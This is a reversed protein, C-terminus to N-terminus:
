KPMEHQVTKNPDDPAVVHRDEGDLWEVPHTALYASVVEGLTAFFRQDGFRTFLEFRKLKDKASDLM